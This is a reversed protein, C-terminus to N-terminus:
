CASHSMRTQFPAQFNAWSRPLAPRAENALTAWVRQMAERTFGGLMVAALRLLRDLDPDRERVTALRMRIADNLTTPLRLTELEGELEYTGDDNLFLLSSDLFAKVMQQLHLAVGGGHQLIFAVCPEPLRGLSATATILERGAAPDLPGLDLHQVNSRALWGAVERSLGAEGKPTRVAVLLFLKLESLREVLAALVSRSSTDLHEADEFALILSRQTALGSLVAVLADM